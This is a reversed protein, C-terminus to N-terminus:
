LLPQCPTVSAYIYKHLYIFYTWYHSMLFSGSTLGCLSPARVWQGQTTASERTEEGIFQATELTVTLWSPHNKLSLFYGRLKRQCWMEGKWLCWCGYSSLGWLRWSSQKWGLSWFVGCDRIHWGGSWGVSLEVKRYECGEVTYWSHERHGIAYPLLFPMDSRLNLRLFGLSWPPLERRLEQLRHSPKHSSFWNTMQHSDKHLQECPRSRPPRLLGWIM